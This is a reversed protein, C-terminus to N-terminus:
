GRDPDTATHAVLAGARRHEADLQQGGRAPPHNDTLPQDGSSRPQHKTRKSSATM